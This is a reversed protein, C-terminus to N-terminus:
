IVKVIERRVLVDIEDNIGELARTAFNNNETGAFQSPVGWSANQRQAMIGGGARGRSSKKFFYNSVIRKDGELLLWRLWELKVGKETVFIAEPLSVVDSYNNRRMNITIGGLTGMKSVYTVEISDAWINIISSVRAAGDVPGFHHRLKGGALSRVEPSDHLKTKILSQLGMEISETIRSISGKIRNKIEAIIYAQFKKDFGKELELRAIFNQKM